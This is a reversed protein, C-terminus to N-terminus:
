SNSAWVSARTRLPPACLWLTTSKDILLWKFLPFHKKYKYVVCCLFLFFFVIFPTFFNNVTCVYMCQPICTSKHKLTHRYILAQSVKLRKSTAPTQNLARKNRQRRPWVCVCGLPAYTPPAARRQWRRQQQKM